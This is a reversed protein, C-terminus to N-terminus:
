KEKKQQNLQSVFKELDSTSDRFADLNPLLETVIYNFYHIKTGNPLNGWLRYIRNDEIKSIVSGEVNNLVM